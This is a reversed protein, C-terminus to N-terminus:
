GIPGVYTGPHTAGDQLLVPGPPGAKPSHDTDRLRAGQATTLYKGRQSHTIPAAGTKEGTPTRTEPTGQEPKPPLPDHPTTPEELTPTGSGLSGPMFIAAVMVVAFFLFMLWQVLSFIRSIVSPPKQTPVPVYVTQTPQPNVSPDVGSM